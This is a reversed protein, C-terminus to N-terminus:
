KLLKERELKKWSLSLPSDNTGLEGPNLALSIFATFSSFFKNSGNNNLSGGLSESSSSSFGGLLGGRHCIGLSSLKSEYGLYTRLSRFHTRVFKYVYLDSRFDTTSIEFGM